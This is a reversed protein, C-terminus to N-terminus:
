SRHQQHLSPCLGGGVYLQNADENPLEHKSDHSVPNAAFGGHENVHRDDKNSDDEQSDGPCCCVVVPNNEIGPCLEYKPHANPALVGHGGGSGCLFRFLVPLISLAVTTAFDHKGVGHLSPALEDVEAHQQQQEVDEVLLDQQEATKELRM